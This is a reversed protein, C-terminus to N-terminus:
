DKKESHLRGYLEQTFGYKKMLAEIDTSAHKKGTKVAKIMLNKPSHAFEVFELIKVEYGNSRLIETRIADTLLACMRDKIIGDTLFVDLDGGKSISSNIEHQCCPVSFVYKIGSKIAYYLAADTATDCAHLTIMMDAKVSYDTKNVDACFFELNDYGYRGATQNCFDVVDAKLDYGSIRVKMKRVVTFYWYLIFTLYSKGCGFDLITLEKDTDEVTEGIIRVFRDIQRFKDSKSKIIQGDGTIVGLDRLAPCVEEGSLVHNKVKDHSTTEPLKRGGSLALNVKGKKSVLFTATEEESQIVYQRFGDANNEMWPLLESLPINVHFAKGNKISEAQFLREGKIVVPRVTIKDADGTRKGSASILRFDEHRAIYDSIQRDM